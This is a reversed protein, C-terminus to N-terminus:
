TAVKLAAARSGRQRGVSGAGVARFRRLGAAAIMAANDTSLALGPIFVPLDCRRRRAGAGGRSAPPQGVCRRRHRRKARRARAAADFLRDLLTTVVVRQFSACIDTIEVTRCRTARARPRAGRSAAHRSAAGLDEARQLQLRAAGASAARQSRRADTANESLPDRPRQRPQARRDVAPGGPIASGSCSPWRTTRRAPPMTARAGSSSTTAPREIRYLSTHGGSVILVVAPLPM